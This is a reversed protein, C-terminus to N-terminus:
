EETMRKKHADPAFNFCFYLFPRWIQQNKKKKETRQCLKSFLKLYFTSNVAKNRWMLLYDM